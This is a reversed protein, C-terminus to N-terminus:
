TPKCMMSEAMINIINQWKKLINEPIEIQFPESNETM